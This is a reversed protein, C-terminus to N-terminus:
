CHMRGCFARGMVLVTFTRWMAQWEVALNQGVVAAKAGRSNYM